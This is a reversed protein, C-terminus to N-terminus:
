TPSRSATRGSGTVRQVGGFRLGTLNVQICEAARRVAGNWFDRGTGTRCCPVGGNSRYINLRTASTGSLALVVVQRSKKVTHFTGIIRIHIEFRVCHIQLALNPIIQTLIRVLRKVTLIDVLINLFVLYFHAVFVQASEAAVDFACSFHDVELDHSTSEFTTCCLSLARCM